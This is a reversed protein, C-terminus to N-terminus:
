RAGAAAPMLKGADAKRLRTITYGEKELLDILGEEGPYHATGIAFFHSDAGQEKLHAVMREAMRRNRLVLLNMRFKEALKEGYEDYEGDMVETLKSADGSLYAQVLTETGASREAKAADADAAAEELSDLTSELLHIQEELTFADFAGIQEEVKEVGGVTKGAKQQRDYLAADLAKKGMMQERMYDLAAMQAMVVWVKFRNFMVLQFGKSALYADTRKYLEAPLVDKLTQGNPLQMHQMAGMQTAMDMPIETYFHDSLDLAENVVQPVALVRDDPLHITGFMFSPKELGEGEIRWLFPEVVETLQPAPAEDPTTPESPQSDQALAPGILGLVAALCVSYRFM